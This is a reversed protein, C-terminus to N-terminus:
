TLFVRLPPARSLVLSLLAVPQEDCRAARRRVLTVVIAPVVLWLPTLIAYVLTAASAPVLATFVVLAVCLIAITKRPRPMASVAAM